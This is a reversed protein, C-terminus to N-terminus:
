SVSYEKKPNILESNCGAYPTCTSVTPAPFFVALLLLMLKM